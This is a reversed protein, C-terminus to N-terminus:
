SLESFIKAGKKRIWFFLVVTVSALLLDALGLYLLSLDLFTDRLLYFIGGFALVCAWSGFLALFVSLSQKIPVIENTWKLNPMKLGLFLGWVATFGVFILASLIVLISGVVSTGLVVVATVAFVATPIGSLWLHLKLKALLVDKADVPLSQILWINKGELSVSPASIDNMSVLLCVAASAILAMLEGGGPLREIMEFVDDRKIVLAVAAVLTFICGLGCNLMYAPSGIFRKFEKRLLASGYGSIKAKKEKYEKKKEGKETTALKIFNHSLVLWVVGFLAAFIGTFICMSLIKGEAALGMHYLPFLVNKVKSAVDTPDAMIDTLYNIAKSYLFYYGVMFALALAVMVFNKNKLKSSFFAVVYGLICSLTLVFLSLVFPILVTFIVGVVGVDAVMFYKVIAPIMIVLEYMLGMAYVGCVRAFLVKSPPIPMSLLMDNDKARYLSSYTNFVSGLVGFVVGILAFITLYLWGFGMPIFADGMTNALFYIMVALYIFIAGYLLAYGILGGGQRRKGSKRNVYLWSFVELLQKKLLAKTM